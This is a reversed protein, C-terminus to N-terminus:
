NLFAQFLIRVLDYHEMLAYHHEVLLYHHRLRTRYSVRLCDDRNQRQSTAPRADSMQSATESLEDMNVRLTEDSFSICRYVTARELSSHLKLGNCNWHYFLKGGQIGM